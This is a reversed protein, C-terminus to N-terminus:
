IDYGLERAKDVLKFSNYDVYSYINFTEKGICFSPSAFPNVDNTLAVEFLDDSVLVWGSVGTAAEAIEIADKESLESIPKKNKQDDIECWEIVGINYKWVRDDDLFQNVVYRGNELKTLVQREHSPLEEDAKIWKM